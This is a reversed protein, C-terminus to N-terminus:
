STVGLWGAIARFVLGGMVDYGADHPHVGDFLAYDGLFQFDAPGIVRTGHPGGVTQRYIADNIAKQRPKFWAPTSYGIFCPCIKTPGYGWLIEVLLHAYRGEFAALSADSQVADNTGIALIVADPQQAAVEAQVWPLLDACTGGNRAANAMTHPIGALTLRKSLERRYGSKTADPNGLQSDGGGNTLSDGITLLKLPAQPTPPVSLLPAAPVAAAAALVARRRVQTM